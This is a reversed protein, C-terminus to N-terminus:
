VFRQESARSEENEWTDGGGSHRLDYHIVRSILRDRYTGRGMHELPRERRRERRSLMETTFAFSQPTQECVVYDDDDGDEDREDEEIVLEPAANISTSMINISSAYTQATSTGTEQEAVEAVGGSLLCENKELTLTYTSRM